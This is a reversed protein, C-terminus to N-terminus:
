AHPGSLRPRLRRTAFAVAGPVVLISSQSRLCRSWEGSSEGTSGPRCRAPCSWSPRGAIVLGVGIPTWPLPGNWYGNALTLAPDILVEALSTLILVAMAVGATASGIVTAWGLRSQRTM